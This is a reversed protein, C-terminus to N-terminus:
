YCLHHMNPNSIYIYLSLSIVGLLANLASNLDSKVTLCGDIEENSRLTESIRESIGPGFNPKM